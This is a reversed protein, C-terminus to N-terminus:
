EQVANFNLLRFYKTNIMRVFNVNLKLNYLITHLVYVLINFIDHGKMVNIHLCHLGLMKGTIM